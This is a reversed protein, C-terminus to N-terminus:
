PALFDVDLSLNLAWAMELEWPFWTSQCCMHRFTSTVGLSRLTNSFPLKGLSCCLDQLALVVGGAEPVECVM